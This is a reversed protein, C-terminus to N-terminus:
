DLFPEMDSGSVASVLEDYNEVADSLRNPTAKHMSASLEQESDVELFKLVEKTEDRPNALLSEYALKKVNVFRSASNLFRENLVQYRTADHVAREVDLKIPPLQDENQDLNSNNQAIQLREMNQRSVAQKLFNERILLVVRLHRNLWHLEDVIEPYCAVQIDYKFKFGCASRKQSMIKRMHDVTQQPTPNDIISDGFCKTQRRYLRDKFEFVGSDTSSDNTAVLDFDEKRCLIEPHSDLMSCLYSSGSRERFWIVFPVACVSKRNQNLYRLSLIFTEHVISQFNNTDVRRSM